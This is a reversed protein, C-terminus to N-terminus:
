AGGLRVLSDLRHAYTHEALVRRRGQEGMGLAWDPERKLRAYSENLEAGNRYVLMERGPEFCRAIDPQDDSLVPTAALYPDFHRQNLGGLVNVENRINLVALYSHYIRALEAVGVRRADIRHAVPGSARWGEGYLTIPVAIQGVIERRLATPSAVFVLEPRREQPGPVGLVLRPNAAYPLYAARPRFGFERHLALLGTDSYAVADHLEAIARVEAGFRDGVWGVLPARGPMASVRELISLPMLYPSITVILEPAFRAIARMILVARPVGLRRSTLLADLSRNLRPDRTIGLRVDHGAARFGAVSDEALHVISGRKGLVFVRMGCRGRIGM